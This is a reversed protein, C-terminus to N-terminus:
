KENWEYGEEILENEIEEKKDSFYKEYVEEVIEQFNYDDFDIDYHIRQGDVMADPMKELWDNDYYYVDEGIYPNKDDTTAVWIEYGDATTEPYFMIDYSGSWSTDIDFEFHEQIAKYQDEIDIDGAEVIGHESLREYILGYTLEKSM